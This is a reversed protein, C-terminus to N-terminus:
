STCALAQDIDETIDAVDEIWLLRIFDDGLRRLANKPTIKSAHHECPAGFRNRMAINALHSFLKLSEIFKV